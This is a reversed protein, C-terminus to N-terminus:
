INNRGRRHKRGHGNEVCCRGHGYNGAINILNSSNCEPCKDIHEDININFMHGCDFCKIINKSFHINGGDITLMKGTIIFESIKHRASEVLRSFTSRSVGMEQSAELHSLGINDALRVAEYEDLSMYIKALDRGTVGFPKFESFLPPVKVIRNNRPRAM